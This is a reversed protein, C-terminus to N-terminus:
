DVSSMSTTRRRKKVIRKAAVLAIVTEEIWGTTRARPAKPKLKPATIFGLVKYETHHPLLTWVLIPMSFVLITSMSPFAGEVHIDIGSVTRPVHSTLWREFDRLDPLSSLHVSLLIKPFGPSLSYLTNSSSPAHTLPTVEDGSGSGLSHALANIPSPPASVEMPLEFFPHAGEPQPERRPYFVIQKIDDESLLCHFPTSELTKPQLGKERALSSHVQAVTFPSTFKKMERILVATYSTRTSIGIPTRNEWGCAALLEKRGIATTRAAAAARCCDFIFLMDSPFQGLVDQLIHWRLSPEAERSCQWIAQGERTQGGHGGYYLIILEGKELAKRQFDMLKWQVSMFANHSPIQWAEVEFGFNKEFVDALEHVENICGLQDDAWSLLLCRVAVYRRAVPSVAGDVARQLQQKFASLSVHPPTYLSLDTFTPAAPIPGSEIAPLAAYLPTSPSQPTLSEMEEEVHWGGDSPEETGAPSMSAAQRLAM